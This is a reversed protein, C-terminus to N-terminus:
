EAKPNNIFNVSRVWASDMKQKLKKEKQYLYVWAKKYQNTEVEKEKISQWSNIGQKGLMFLYTSLLFILMWYLLRGFVIRYYQNAFQEPFLLLRFQRVVNKPQAEVTQQIQRIGTSVIAQVLKADAPPPTVEQQELKQQISEIKATLKNVNSVLAKTGQLSVKQEELIEKLVSEIIETDM